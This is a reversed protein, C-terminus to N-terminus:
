MDAGGKDKETKLLYVDYHDDLYTIIWFVGEEIDINILHNTIRKFHHRM